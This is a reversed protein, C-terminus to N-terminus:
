TLMVDVMEAGRSEGCEPLPWAMSGSPCSEHWAEMPAAAMHGEIVDAPEAKVKWLASDDMLYQLNTKDTEGKQMFTPVFLAENDSTEVKGNEQSMPNGHLDWIDFTYSSMNITGRQFDLVCQQKKLFDMGLLINGEIQVLQFSHELELDGLRLKVTGVGHIPIRSGDALVGQGGSPSWMIKSDKELEMFLDYPMVSHSCGTDLLMMCDRSGLKGRLYYTNEEAQSMLFVTPSVSREVVSVHGGDREPTTGSPQKVGEPIRAEMRVLCAGTSKKLHNPHKSGIGWEEGDGTVGGLGSKQGAEQDGGGPAGGLCCKQGAGQDDGGLAGGLCCKQGAGQDDDGSAGDLCCKQRAGQDGDCMEKEDGEKEEHQTRTPKTEEAM